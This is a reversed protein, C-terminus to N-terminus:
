CWEWVVMCIMVGQVSAQVAQKETNLTRRCHSGLIISRKLAISEISQWICCRRCHLAAVTVNTFSAHHRIGWWHCWHEQLLANRSSDAIIHLQCTPEGSCRRNRRPQYWSVCSLTPLLICQAHRKIPGHHSRMCTRCSIRSVRHFPYPICARIRKEEQANYGDKTTDRKSIQITLKARQCTQINQM